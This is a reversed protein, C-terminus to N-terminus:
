ETSMSFPAEGHAVQKREVVETPTKPASSCGTLASGLACALLPLLALSTASLRM